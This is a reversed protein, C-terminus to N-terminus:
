ISMMHIVKSLLQVLTYAFELLTPGLLSEAFTSGFLQPIQWWISVSNPESADIVLQLILAPIYSMLVLILGLGFRRLETLVVGQESRFCRCYKEVLPYVGFNLLPVLIVLLLPNVVSSKLCDTLSHTLPHLNINFSYGLTEPEIEGFFVHLDMQQAQLTWTSGQQDTLAYFMPVYAYISAIRLISRAHEISDETFRKRNANLVRYWFPTLPPIDYSSYSFSSSAPTSAKTTTTTESTTDEGEGRNHHRQDLTVMEVEVTEKHALGDGESGDEMLQVHRMDPESLLDGVDGTSEDGRGGRCRQWCWRVLFSIRNWTEVLSIWEAYLMVLLATTVVSNKDASPLREKYYPKGLTITITAVFLLVSPVGFAVFYGFESRLIPSIIYSLVSGANITTYFFSFYRQIQKETDSAETSASSTTSTTTTTSSTVENYDESSSNISHIINNNSSNNSSNNSNNNNHNSPKNSDYGDIQEAGL